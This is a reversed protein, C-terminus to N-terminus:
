LVGSVLYLGVENKTTTKVFRYFGPADVGVVNNTAALEQLTGNIFIDHFTAGDDVSIQIKINEAGTLNTAVITCPIRNNQPLMAFKDTTVENITPHILVTTIM